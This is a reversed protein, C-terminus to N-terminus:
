NVEAAFHSEFKQRSSFFRATGSAQPTRDVNIYTPIEYEVGDIEERRDTSRVDMLPTLLGDQNSLRGFVDFGRGLASAGPIIM